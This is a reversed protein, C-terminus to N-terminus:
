LKDIVDQLLDKAEQHFANRNPDPWNKDAGHLRLLEPLVEFAVDQLVKRAYEVEALDEISSDDYATHGKYISFQGSATIQLSVRLGLSKHYVVVKAPGFRTLTGRMVLSLLEPRDLTVGDSLNTGRFASDQNAIARVLAISIDADIQPSHTYRYLAWKFFDDDGMSLPVDDQRVTASKDLTRVLDRVGPVVFNRLRGADREGLLALLEGDHSSEAFVVDAARLTTTSLFGGEGGIAAEQLRREAENWYLRAHLQDPYVESQRIPEPRGGKPRNQSVRGLVADTGDDVAGWGPAEGGRYRREDLQVRISELSATTKLVVPTVSIQGSTITAM